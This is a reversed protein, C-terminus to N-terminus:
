MVKAQATDPESDERPIPQGLETLAKGPWQSSTIIGGIYTWEDVDENVAPPCEAM